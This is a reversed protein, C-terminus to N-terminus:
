SKQAMYRVCNGDSDKIYMERTGWTQDVPATDIWVGKAVFEAYLEDVSEVLLIVVGGSVGDWSLSSLHICVGDRELGM